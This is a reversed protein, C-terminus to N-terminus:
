PEKKKQFLSRAWAFSSSKADDTRPAAGGSARREILRMERTADVHGPDLSLAKGFRKRAREVDQRLLALRGLYYWADASNPNLKLGAEITKAAAPASQADALFTAWGLLVFAEASTPDQLSADRFFGIAEGYVRNKLRLKGQVLSVKALEPEARVGGVTRKADDQVKARYASRKDNDKLVEYAEQVRAYIANALQQVRSHQDAVTDPHYRKALERSRERIEREGAEPGLGFVAFHNARQLRHLERVSTEITATTEADWPKGRLDIFGVRRLLGLLSRIRARAARDGEGAVRLLQDVTIEKNRAKDLLSLVKREAALLGWADMHDATPLRVVVIADTHAEGFREGLRGGDLQLVDLLAAPVPVPDLEDKLSEDPAAEITGDELALADSLLRRMTRKRLAPVEHMGIARLAM